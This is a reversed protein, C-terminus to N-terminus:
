FLKFRKILNDLDSAEESLNGSIASSEESSAATNQVVEAIQDIGQEIQALATSQSRAAESSHQAIDAFSKMDAIIKDFAESTSATIANGKEIETLTKQILERTNM